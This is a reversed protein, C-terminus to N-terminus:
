QLNNQKKRKQVQEQELSDNTMKRKELELALESFSDEPELGFRENPGLFTQTSYHEGNIFDGM